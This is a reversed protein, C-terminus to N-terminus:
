LHVLWIVILLPVLYYIIVLIRSTLPRVANRITTTLGFLGLARLDPNDDFKAAHAVSGLLLRHYYFLDLIGAATWFAIPLLRVILEDRATLETINQIAIAAGVFAGFATLTMARFRVILDNFHMQVQIVAQWEKQILELTTKQGDSIEKIPVPILNTASPLGDRRDSYRIWIRDLVIGAAVLVVAIAISDFM